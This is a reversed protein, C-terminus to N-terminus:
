GIPPVVVRLLRVTGCVGCLCKNVPRRPYLVGRRPKLDPQQSPTSTALRGPASGSGVDGFAADFLPLVVNLVEEKDEPPLIDFRSLAGWQLMRLQFRQRREPPLEDLAENLVERARRSYRDEQPVKGRGAELIHVASQGALFRV